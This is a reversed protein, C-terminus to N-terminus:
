KTKSQLRKVMALHSQVVPITNNIIALLATDKVETQSTQMKDLLDSHDEIMKSTWASDWSPGKKVTLDVTHATEVPPVTLYQHSSLFVSVTSDLKKHDKLMMIAHDKLEARRGDRIGAQLWIIELTNAPIAYNIFDQEGKNNYQAVKSSTDSNSASDSSDESGGKNDGGCASLLAVGAILSISIILKM